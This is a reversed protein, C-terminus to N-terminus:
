EERSKIQVTCARLASYALETRTRTVTISFGASTLRRRLAGVSCNQVRLMKDDAEAFVADVLPLTQRAGRLAACEFGQVDMKLLRVRARAWGPQAQHAHRLLEDIPRVPVNQVLDIGGGGGRTQGVLIGQSSIMSNGQNGKDMAMQVSGAVEGAAAALVVVRHRVSADREVALNLSRTLYFLNNPNPEIAVIRARTLLLMELTCAGINAGLDVFLGAHACSNNSVWLDNLLGCERWRGSREINLSIWDRVNNHAPVLCIPHEDRGPLRLTGQRCHSAPSFTAGIPPDGPQWLFSSAPM